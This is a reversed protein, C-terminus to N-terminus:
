WHVDRAGESMFSGHIGFGIAKDSSARGVEKLTKADLVLLYSNGATGDLVVSLLVGDDEWDRKTSGETSNVKGGDRHIGPQSEPNPIFLPEGPTQGHQHWTLVKHTHTDYKIITDIFTSAGTDLAGYIYRHPLTHLNPNTNPLEPTQSRPAQFDETVRRPKSPTESSSSPHTDTTAKDHTTSSQSTGPAPQTTDLFYWPSSTQKPTDSSSSRIQRSSSHPSISGNATPQLIDSLRFRTLRPAFKDLFDGTSYAPANPADSQLNEYYFKQLLDLSSYVPIDAVIDTQSIQQTTANNTPVSSTVQEEYANVTHFAFFPDSEYSTIVGRGGEEPSLRDIVFWTAPKTDDYTLSELINQKFLIASGAGQFYSNWICLVVYNETLFMSHLYVPAHQITALIHTKGTAASVRFVRYTGTRGFDLNYNFVDGTRPCAKAHASSLPGKLDPHLVTQRALGTPQLTESDLIQYISADTKTCLTYPRLRSDTETLDRSTSNPLGPHNISVTVNVNVENPEPQKAPLWPRFFTQVKQFFTQCPEYKAGFTIGRMSGERRVREILGDSIIRSQYTARPQQGEREPPYITFRHLQSFNDFWHKAM